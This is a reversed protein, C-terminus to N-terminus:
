AQQNFALVLCQQSVLRPLIAVFNAVCLSTTIVTCPDGQKLSELIPHAIQTAQFKVLNEIFISLNLSKSTHRHLATCLCLGGLPICSVPTLLSPGTIRVTPDKNLDEHNSTRSFPNLMVLTEHM